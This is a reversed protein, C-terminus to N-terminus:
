FKLSRLIIYGAHWIEDKGFYRVKQDILTNGDKKWRIRWDYHGPLIIPLLLHDTGPIFKVVWSWKPPTNDARYFDINWIEIVEDLDKNQSCHENIPVLLKYCDKDIRPIDVFETFGLGKWYSKSSIPACQLDIAVIGKGRFFDILQDILIKGYGMGRYKHHIEVIDITASFDSSEFWVVFGVPFDDLLAVAMQQEQFLSQIIRWNCYFGNFDGDVFLDREIILWEKIVKLHSEKPAFSIKLNGMSAFTTKITSDLNKIRDFFPSYFCKM